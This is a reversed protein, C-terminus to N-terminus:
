TWSKKEFFGFPILLLARRDTLMSSVINSNSILNSVNKITSITGSLDFKLASVLNFHKLFKLQRKLRSQPFTHEFLKKKKTDWRKKNKLNPISLKWHTRAWFM